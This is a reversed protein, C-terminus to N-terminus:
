RKCFYILRLIYFYRYYLLYSVVRYKLKSNKLNMEIAKNYPEEKVLLNLRKNIENYTLTCKKNFYQYKMCRMIGILAEKYYLSWIEESVNYQKLKDGLNNYFMLDVEDMNNIYGRSASNERENVFYVTKKLYCLKNFSFFVNVNFLLDEGMKLNKLFTINNEILFTKRYAKACPSRLSVNGWESNIKNNSIACKVFELRRENNYVNCLDSDSYSCTKNVNYDFVILDYNDKNICKLISDVYEECIQDDSDVFCIWEGNCNKMGINRAVSVGQNEQSYVYINEFKEEYKKCISLSNDESGDDVIIIEFSDNTQGLISEICGKIYKEANYVPVIFSVLSCKKMKERGERLVKFLTKKQKQEGFM